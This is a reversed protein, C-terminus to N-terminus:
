GFGRQNTEVRAAGASAPVPQLNAGSATRRRLCAMDKKYRADLVATQEINFPTYRGCGEPVQAGQGRKLVLERLTRTDPAANHLEALPNIGIVRGLLLGIQAEPQSALKEFTWVVTEAHPFAAAIDTAVDPWGRSQDVLAQLQAATPMPRGQWISFALVSAWYDRYARVSLAVKTCAPGFARRFRELREPLDPYLTASDINRRMTGLINEESVVLQSVGLASLRELELAILGNNREILRLTDADRASTARLLGSFLGGRTRGPGWFVTGNRRLKKQNYQFNRQLTTTGTRHAGVHLIVDLFRRGKQWFYAILLLM